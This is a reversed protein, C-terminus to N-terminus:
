NIVNQSDVNWESQNKEKKENWIKKKKIQVRTKMKKGWFQEKEIKPMKLNIGVSWNKLGKRKNKLM